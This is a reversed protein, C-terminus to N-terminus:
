EKVEGRLKDAYTVELARLLRPLCAGIAAIATLM